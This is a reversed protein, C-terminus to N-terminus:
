AKTRFRRMWRGWDAYDTQYKPNGDKDRKKSGVTFPVYTSGDANERLYEIEKRVKEPRFDQKTKCKNGKDRSVNIPSMDQNSPIENELSGAERSQHTFGKEGGRQKSVGGVLCEPLINLSSVFNLFCCSSVLL